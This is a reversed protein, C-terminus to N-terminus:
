PITYTLSLLLGIPNGTVADAAATGDIYYMTGNVNFYIRPTGDVIAVGVYGDSETIPAETDNDEVLVKGASADVIKGSVINVGASSVNFVEDVVTRNDGVCFSITGNPNQASIVIGDGNGSDYILTKNTYFPLTNYDPGFCSLFLRNTEAKLALTSFASVGTSTNQINQRVEGNLEQIILLGAFTPSADTNVDQHVDAFSDHSLAYINSPTTITLDDFTPSAGTGLSQGIVRSALDNIIFELNLWDHAVLSYQEVSM